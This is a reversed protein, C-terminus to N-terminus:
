APNETAHPGASDVEDIWTRYVARTEATALLADQMDALPEDLKASHGKAQGVIPALGSASETAVIGGEAFGKMSRLFAVADPTDSDPAAQVFRIAAVIGPNIARVTEDLKQSLALAKAAIPALEAALENTVSVREAFSAAMRVKPAIRGAITTAATMTAAYENTLAIVKPLDAEAAAILDVIDPDEGRPPAPVDTVAEGSEAQERLKREVRLAITDVARSWAASGRDEFKLHEVSLHHLDKVNAWLDDDPFQADMRDAGVLLLPVILRKGHETPLFSLFERLEARCQASRLYHPSAFCFLITTASLGSRLRERWDEGLRISDTDVLVAGTDHGTLMGYWDAVDAVLSSIRGNTAKDDAHAYSVFIAIDSM